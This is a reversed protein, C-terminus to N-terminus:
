ADDARGGAAHAPSSRSSEDMPYVDGPVIVNKHENQQKELRSIERDLYWRAKKLDEIEKAPDKQGARWIYQVASGLCLSMHEVIEICQVGSPHSNYHRPHNVPDDKM